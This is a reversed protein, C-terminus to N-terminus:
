IWGYENEMSDFNVPGFSSHSRYVHWKGLATPCASCPCQFLYILLSLAYGLEITGTTQSDTEPRFV